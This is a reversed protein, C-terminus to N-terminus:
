VEHLLLMGESTPCYTVSLDSHIGYYTAARINKCKDLVTSGLFQVLVLYKIDLWLKFLCHGQVVVKIITLLGECNQLLQQTYNHHWQISEQYFLVLDKTKKGLHHRMLFRCPVSMMSIIKAKLNDFVQFVQFM